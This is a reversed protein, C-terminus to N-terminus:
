YEYYKSDISWNVLPEKASEPYLSQDYTYYHYTRPSVDAHYNTYARVQADTMLYTEQRFSPCSDHHYWLPEEKTGLNVLLWYHNGYKPALDLRRRVVITELGLYELMEKSIACHTFCDGKKRNVLGYYAERRMDGYVVGEHVYTVNNLIYRYITRIKDVITMDDTLIEDFIGQIVEDMMEKTVANDHVVLKFSQRKENGARDKAVFFSEYEGPVDLIAAATDVSLDVMGSNDVAEVYARWILTEGVDMDLEAPYKVFEPLENDEMLECEAEYVTTNGGQDTLLIKVTCPGTVESGPETEYSVSVPGVDVIDSVFEAAKPYSQGLFVKQPTVVAVPPVTDEVILTRTYKEGEVELDINYEGVLSTNIVSMDTLISGTVGFGVFDEFAPLRDGAEMTISAHAADMIDNVTICVPVETVNGAEDKLVVVTDIIGKSSFDVKDKFSFSVDTCDYVDEVCQEPNVETGKLVTIPRAKATPAVTDSVDLLVNYIKGDAMIEVNYKGVHKVVALGDTVFRMAFEGTFEASHGAEILFDSAEFLRGAEVSALGALFSSGNGCGTTCVLIILCCSLLTM